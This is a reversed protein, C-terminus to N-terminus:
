GRKQWAILTRPKQKTAGYPGIDAYGMDDIFIIVVNPPKEAAPAVGLFLASLCLLMLYKMTYLSLGTEVIWTLVM